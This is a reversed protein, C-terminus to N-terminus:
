LILYISNKSTFFLIMAILLVSSLSIVSSSLSVPFAESLCSCPFWHHLFSSVLLVSHFPRVEWWFRLSYFLLSSINSPIIVSLKRSNVFMLFGSLFSSFCIGALYICLLGWPSLNYHFLHVGSVFSSGVLLQPSFVSWRCFVSNSQSFVEWFSDQFSSPLSYYKFSQSFFLSM